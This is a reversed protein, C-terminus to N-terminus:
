IQSHIIKTQERPYAKEPVFCSSNNEFQTFVFVFSPCNIKNDKNLVGVMIALVFITM